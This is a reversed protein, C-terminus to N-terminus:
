GSAGERSADPVAVRDQRMAALRDARLMGAFPLLIARGVMDTTTLAAALIRCPVVRGHILAQTGTSPPLAIKFCEARCPRLIVTPLCPDSEVADPTVPKTLVYM